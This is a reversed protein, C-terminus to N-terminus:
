GTLRNGLAEIWSLRDFNDIEYQASDPFFHRLTHLHDEGVLACAIEKTRFEAKGRRDKALKRMSADIEVVHHSIRSMKKGVTMPARRTMRCHRLREQLRKAMSAAIGTGVIM